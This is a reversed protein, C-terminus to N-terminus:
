RSPPEAAASQKNTEVIACRFRLEVRGPGSCGRTLCREIEPTLGM